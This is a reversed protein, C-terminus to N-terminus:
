KQTEKLLTRPDIGCYTAIDLAAKFLASRSEELANRAEDEALSARDVDLATATQTAFSSRVLDLRSSAQELLQARLTVKADCATWADRLATLRNAANQAVEAEAIRAAGVRADAAKTRSSGYGTPLPISVTASVSWSTDPDDAGSDRADSRTVPGPVTVSSSLSFTPAIESGGLIRNAEASRRDREAKKAEASAASGAAPAGFSALAGVAASVPATVAELSAGDIGASAIGTAACLARVASDRSLRSELATLRAEDAARQKEALDSYSITGQDHRVEAIALDRDAIASKRETLSVSRSASAADLALRFAADVTARARADSAERAAEVPLDIGVTKAAGGLKPDILKGNVFIPTRLGAKVTATDADKLKNTSYGYSGGLSLTSGFPLSSSASLDGSVANSPGIVSSAGPDTRSVQASASGDILRKTKAAVAEAEAARLQEIAILREPDNALAAEAFSSLDLAQSWAPCVMCVALLAVLPLYTRKM